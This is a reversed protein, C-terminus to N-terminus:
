WGIGAGGTGTPLASLQSDESNFMGMDDRNLVYIRGTKGAAVV